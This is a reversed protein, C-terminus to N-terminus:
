KAKSVKLELKQKVDKYMMERVQDSIAKATMGEYDSSHIVDLIELVVNTKKWPFNINVDHADVITMVVIPAKNKIAINFCGEHFENFLVDDYQRKGEPFVGVSCKNDAIYGSARKMVALSQMLDSRDISMYNMGSIFRGVIPIKCNQPKTIFAIGKKGFYQSILMPDFNGRHNCVILCREKPFKSEGVVKLHIRAHYAIFQEGQILWWTAFKSPKPLEKLPKYFRSCIWCIGFLILFSGAYGGILLVIPIYFDYGHLVPWFTLSGSVSLAIAVLIMILEIIM